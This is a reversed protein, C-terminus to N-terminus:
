AVCDDLIAYAARESLSCGIARCAARYAAVAKDMRRVGADAADGSRANLTASYAARYADVFPGPAAPTDLPLNQAVNDM